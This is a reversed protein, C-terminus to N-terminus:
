FPPAMKRKSGGDPTMNSVKLVLSKNFDPLRTMNSFALTPQNLLVIITLCNDATTVIFYVSFYPSFICLREPAYLLTSFYQLTFDFAAALWCCCCCCYCSIMMLFWLLLLLSCVFIFRLFCLLLYVFLGM